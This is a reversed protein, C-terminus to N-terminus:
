KPFLNERKAWIPRSLSRGIEPKRDYNPHCTHAVMSQKRWNLHPDWSSKQSPQGWVAIKRIVAVWIALIKCNEERPHSSMNSIAKHPRCIALHVCPIIEIFIVTQTWDL